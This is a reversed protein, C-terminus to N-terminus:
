CWHVVLNAQGSRTGGDSQDLCSSQSAINTTDLCTSWRAARNNSRLTSFVEEQRHTIYIIGTGQRKLQEIQGFLWETEPASLASTPEDLIVVKANQLVATAIQTMHRHAVSLVSASQTVPIREGVTQMAAEAAGNVKKWDVLGLSNTPLGSQLAMNEAVSLTSFFEAEQHVTVIGLQRAAVPSGMTTPQGDILIEGADPRLVGSILNILTSKGAGNEGVLAHVEGSRLEFDVNDLAVVGPFTHRIQHLRLVPSM